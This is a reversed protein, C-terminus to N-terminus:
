RHHIALLSKGFASLLRTKRGYLRPMSSSRRRPLYLLPRRGDCWPMLLSAKRRFLPAANWLVDELDFCQIGFSRGSHWVCKSDSVRTRVIEKESLTTGAFHSGM